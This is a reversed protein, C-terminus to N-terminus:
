DNVIHVPVSVAAVDGGSISFSLDASLNALRTDQRVEITCRYTKQSPNSVDAMEVLHIWEPWNKDPTCEWEAAESTILIQRKLPLSKASVNIVSPITRITSRSEIFVRFSRADTVPPDFLPNVTVVQVSEKLESEGEVHVVYRREVLETAYEREAPLEPIELRCFPSDARFGRLWSRSGKKEWTLVVFTKKDGNKVRPQLRVDDIPYLLRPVPWPKGHLILKTELPIVSPNSTYIKVRLVQKGYDPLRVRIRIEAADGTGTPTQPAAEVVACGCGTSVGVISAPAKGVNRVRIVVKQSSTKEDDTISLETDPTEVIWQQGASTAVTSTNRQCGIVCVLLVPLQVCFRQCLKLSM